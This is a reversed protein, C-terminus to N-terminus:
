PAPSASPLLPRVFGFLTSQVELQNRVLYGSVYIVAIFKMLESPQLNM